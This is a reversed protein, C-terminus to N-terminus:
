HNYPCACNLVERLNNIRKALAAAAECEVFDPPPFMGSQRAGPQQMPDDPQGGPIEGRASQAVEVAPQGPVPDADSPSTDSKAASSVSAASVQQQDDVMDRVAAQSVTEKGTLRAYDVALADRYYWAVIGSVVVITLILHCSIWRLITM